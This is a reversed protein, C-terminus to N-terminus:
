WSPSAQCTALPRPLPTVALIVWILTAAIALEALRQRHVPSRHAAVALCGFTLLLTVGAFLAPGNNITADILHTM